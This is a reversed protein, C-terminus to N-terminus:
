AAERFYTRVHLAVRLPGGVKEKQADSSLALGDLVYFKQSRQLSNVFKVVSGYEGSVIAEISVEALGRNELPKQKNALSVIQLGSKRALDYLDSYILSYGASEPPLAQEFTDCDKRTKPMDDRISQAREIDGRLLKLQLTQRDFEAQPTQPASALQWSYVGLAIDAALLATLLVLIVRKQVSFDRQM